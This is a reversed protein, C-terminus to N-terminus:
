FSSGRLEDSSVRVPKGQEKTLMEAFDDKAADLADAYALVAKQRDAISVEGWADAAARAAHVADDIDKQTSVPVEPNEELTSPNISHRTESTQRVQGDIINGFKTWDLTKSTGNTGGNTHGNTGNTHPNTHGNTTM